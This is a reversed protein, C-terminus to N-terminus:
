GIVPRSLLICVCWIGILMTHRLVVAAATRTPIFKMLIMYNQSNRGGRGTDSIFIITHICKLFGSFRNIRVIRFCYDLYQAIQSRM